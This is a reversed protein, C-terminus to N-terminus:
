NSEKNQDSRYFSNLISIVFICACAVAFIFGYIILEDNFNLFDFIEHRNLIFDGTSKFFDYAYNQM